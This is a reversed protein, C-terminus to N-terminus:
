SMESSSIARSAPQVTIAQQTRSIRRADRPDLLNSAKLYDIAATELRAARARQDDDNVRMDRIAALLQAIAGAPSVAQANALDDRAYEGDLSLKLQVGELSRLLEPRPSVSDRSIQSLSRDVLGACAEIRALKRAAKSAPCIEVVSM